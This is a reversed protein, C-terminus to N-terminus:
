GPPLPDNTGHLATLKEQLKSAGAKAKMDAVFQEDAEIDADIESRHSHYYSLAAFVAALSLSPHTVVIEEPTMGRREHWVAIHQVKIRHGIIHPKGGCFGPKVAIYEGIIPVVTQASITEPTAANM